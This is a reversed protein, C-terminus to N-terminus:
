SHKCCVQFGYNSQLYLAFAAYEAAEADVTPARMVSHMALAKMLLANLKVDVTNVFRVQNLSNTLLCRIAFLVYKVSFTTASYGGPGEKGRCNITNALLEVLLSVETETLLLVSDEPNSNITSNKVRPQGFHGESGLLYALTM